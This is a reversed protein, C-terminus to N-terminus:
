QSTVVVQASTSGFLVNITVPAGSTWFSPTTGVTSLPANLAFSTQAGPQLVFTNTEFM